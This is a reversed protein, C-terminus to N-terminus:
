GAVGEVVFRARRSGPRWLAQRVPMGSGPRCVSGADVRMSRSGVCRLGLEGDRNMVDVTLTHLEYDDAAPEVDSADRGALAVDVVGRWSGDSDVTAPAYSGRAVSRGAPSTSTTGAAVDVGPLDHPETDAAFTIRVPIEEDTAALRALRTINRMSSGTSRGRGRRAARALRLSRGRRLLVADAPRGPTRDMAEGRLAEIELRAAIAPSDDM